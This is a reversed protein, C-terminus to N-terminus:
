IGRAGCAVGGPRPVGDVMENEGAELAFLQLMRGFRIPVLDLIRGANSESLLEVPDRRGKFPKWGAQSSRPVADRLARGKARREDASLYPAKTRLDADARSQKARQTM